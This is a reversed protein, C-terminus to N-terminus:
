DAKLAKEKRQEAWKVMVISGEYLLVLPLGLMIQTFPDPPTLLAGVVFIGIIAYPRIKQLTKAELLGLRALTVVIVPLEFIVGFALIFRFCFSLYSQLSWLHRAGALGMRILAPLGFFLLFYAFFAGVCFFVSGAIIAVWVLRREHEYLGPALFQWIFYLLVPIAFVIGALLALKLRVLFADLPATFILEVEIDMSALPRQLVDGLLSAFLLGIMTTIALTILCKLIVWRLEELHDWFDLHDNNHRVEDNM